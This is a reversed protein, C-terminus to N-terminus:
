FLASQTQHCKVNKPHRPYCPCAPSLLVVEEPRKMRQGFSNKCCAKFTCILIGRYVLSVVFLMPHCTQQACKLGLFNLHVCMEQPFINNSTASACLERGFNLRFVKYCCCWFCVCPLLAGCSSSPFPPIYEM